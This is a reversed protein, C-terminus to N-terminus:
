RQSIHDTQKTDVFGKKKLRQVALKEKTVNDMMLIEDFKKKNQINASTNLQLM